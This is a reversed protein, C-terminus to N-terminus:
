FYRYQIPLVKINNAISCSHYKPRRIFYEVLLRIGEASIRDFILTLLLSKERISVIESLMRAASEYYLEEIDVM